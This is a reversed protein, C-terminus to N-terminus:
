GTFRLVLKVSLATINKDGPQDLPPQLCRAPRPGSRPRGPQSQLYIGESFCFGVSTGFTLGRTEGRLTRVFSTESPEQVAPGSHLVSDPGNQVRRGPSRQAVWMQIVSSGSRRHLLLWRVRILHEEEHTQEGVSAANKM